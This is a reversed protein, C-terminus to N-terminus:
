SPVPTGGSKDHDPDSTVQERVEQMYREVARYHYPQAIEFIEIFHDYFWETIGANRDFMSRFDYYFKEAVEGTTMSGRDDHIKRNLIEVREDRERRHEDSHTKYLHYSGRVEDNSLRAEEAAMVYPLLMAQFAMLGATIGLHLPQALIGFAGWAGENMMAGLMAHVYKGYVALAGVVLVFGAKIIFGANQKVSIRVQHSFASAAHGRAQHTYHRADQEHGESKLKKARGLCEKAQQRHEARSKVNHDTNLLFRAIAVNFSFLNYFAKVSKDWLRSAQEKIKDQTEKNLGFKYGLGSAVPLGVLICQNLVSLGLFWNALFVGGGIIVAANFLPGIVNWGSGALKKSSIWSANSTELRQQKERSLREYANRNLDDYKQKEEHLIEEFRQDSTVKM